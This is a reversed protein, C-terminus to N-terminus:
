PAPPKAAPASAPTVYFRREGFSMFIRLKELINMGILLRPRELNDSDRLARNGTQQSRDNDRTRDPYIVVRPLEDRHHRWLFTKRVYASLHARNWCFLSRDGPGPGSVGFYNKAVLSTMFTDTAGTDIIAEFNKDNLTVEVEVHANDRLVIPVMGVATAPWYIVKGPCHDKLFYKMSNEAFDLEVEYGFMMNAALLGDFPRQRETPPLLFLRTKTFRLRGVMFEEAAASQTSYDGDVSYLRVSGSKQVHLNTKAAGEPTLSSIFGGTDILFTAPTGNVTVPITRRGDNELTTMKITDILQLPKCDQALAPASSLGTGALCVAIAFGKM